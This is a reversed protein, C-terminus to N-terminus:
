GEEQVYLAHAIMVGGRRVIGQLPYDHQCMTGGDPARRLTGCRGFNCRFCANWSRIRPDRTWGAAAQLVARVAGGAAAAGGEDPLLM